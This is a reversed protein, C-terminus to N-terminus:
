LGVYITINWFKSNFIIVYETKILSKKFIIIFYIKPVFIKLNFSCINGQELYIITKINMIDIIM